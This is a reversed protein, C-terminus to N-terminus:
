LSTAAAYPCTLAYRRPPWESASEGAHRHGGIPAADHDSSREGPWGIRFSACVICTMTVRVLYGDPLPTSQAFIKPVALTGTADGACSDRDPTRPGARSRPGSYPSPSVPRPLYFFGRVTAAGPLAAVPRRHGVYPAPENGAGGEPARM